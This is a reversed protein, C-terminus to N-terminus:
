LTVDLYLYLKSQQCIPRDGQQYPQSKNYITWGRETCKVDIPGGGGGGPLGFDASCVFEAVTGLVGSSEPV